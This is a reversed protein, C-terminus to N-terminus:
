IKFGQGCTTQEFGSGWFCLPDMCRRAVISTCRGVIRCPWKYYHEAVPPTCGTCSVRCAQRPTAQWACSSAGTCRAVSQFAKPIPDTWTLPLYPDQRHTTGSGRWEIDWALVCEGDGCVSGLNSSAEFVDEAARFLTTTAHVRYESVTTEFAVNCRRDSDLRPSM